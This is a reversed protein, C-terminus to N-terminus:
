VFNHKLEMETVWLFKYPAQQEKNKLFVFLDEDVKQTFFCSM